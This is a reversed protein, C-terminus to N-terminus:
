CLQTYVRMRVAEEPTFPVDINAKPYFVRQNGTSHQKDLHILGASKGKELIDNM